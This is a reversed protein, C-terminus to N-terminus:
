RKKTKLWCVHAHDGHDKLTEPERMLVLAAVCLVFLIVFEPAAVILDALFKVNM